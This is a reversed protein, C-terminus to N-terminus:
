WSGQRGEMSLGPGLIEPVGGKFRGSDGAGAMGDRQRRVFGLRRLLAAGGHWAEAGVHGRHGAVDWGGGVETRSQSPVLFRGSARM